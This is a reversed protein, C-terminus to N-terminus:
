EMVGYISYRIRDKLPEFELTNIANMYICNGTSTISTEESSQIYMVPIANTANECGMVPYASYIESAETVAMVPYINFENVFSEMLEIRILEISQIFKDEPNFTLYIMKSDKIKQIAEASVNLSELEKPHYSFEVWNDNIKGLVIYEKSKFRYDKYKDLAVYSGQWAGLLSSIMVFAIILGLVNKRNFFGKKEKKM